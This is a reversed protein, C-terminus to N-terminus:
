ETTLPLKAQVPKNVPSMRKELLNFARSSLLTLALYILAVTGFIEFSRYNNAIILRGEQLLEQYGIVSALSTDKLLTIFESGLPPLMRRLAQPFIIYRMTELSGLGLSEAAETQGKEISQIGARVIEAIYAASNLTLALVTATFPNLSFQIGFGQVLAPIGFYIM